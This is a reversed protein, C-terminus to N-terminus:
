RTIVVKFGWLPAQTSLAETLYPQASTGPHNVSLFRVRKGVRRWYFSLYPAQRPTITRAPQGEHVSYAYVLDSGSRGIVTEGVTRISWNITSKLHGTSYPGGPANSRAKRNVSATAARVQKRALSLSVRKVEARNLEVRNAM